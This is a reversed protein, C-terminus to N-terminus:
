YVMELNFHFLVFIGCWLLETIWDFIQLFLHLILVCLFLYMQGLCHVTMVHFLYKVFPPPILTINHASVM